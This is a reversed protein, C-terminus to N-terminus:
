EGRRETKAFRADSGKHALERLIASYLTAAPTKGGPSTWYGKAAWTATPKVGGCAL